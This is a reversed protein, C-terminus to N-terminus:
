AKKVLQIVKSQVVTLLVNTVIYLGLGASFSATIAGFVLAMVATTIVQQSDKASIANFLMGVTVAIPLIYYPDPASLDPIWLMPAHYLEISSSLVRSLALFIPMQILVPLCGGLGLGHKKLVQAREQALVEPQDKYKKQLYALKKQMEKQGKLSKESKFAFPLLILKMLFTLIIIAFGYNHVYRYLWNLIELLIKSIPAFIGYYGLLQELRSDVPMMAHAQKPGFYFSVTWTTDNTITPGELISFLKQETTTYYARQTFANTDGIMVHAFYQDEAGFLTPLFWGREQEISKLATKSFKNEANIVIGSIINTKDLGELYPAPYFIRAQVGDTKLPIVKLQLDVKHENKDIIFTKSIKADRTSAQYVLNIAQDTETQEALVYYFPTKEQLAVLLPRPEIEKESTPAITNLLQIEGNIKRKFTLEELAAGGSTFKLQAWSTEIVTHQIPDARDIDIFDITKDLPKFEQKTKPAIFTTDQTSSGGFPSGSFFYRFGAVLLLAFGLSILIDKLNM